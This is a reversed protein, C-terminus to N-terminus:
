GCADLAELFARPLRHPHRAAFLGEYSRAAAMLEPREEALRRVVRDERWQPEGALHALVARSESIEGVCEFPKHDGVGCLAAFGATQSEDDLLDRGFIGALEGKEVFPALALFVFRCKPCDGCWQRARAEASQRFAANCSRFTGFYQPHRSFRRAIEIESLPRLFSFYDLGTAIHDALYRALLGEFELSKSWQHNVAVGDAVLNPASASHENSMAVAREGDLIAAALAIASLIGTIPVHGNLAGARNLALLRPDLRRRVRVSPLGSAAVTAAIPAADGLMFLTVPEGARRLCELTVISDKGGGVPVLTRRPLDLALPSPPPAPQTEFEIRGALSLRNRYAFEALGQEYFRRLFAATAIDLPFADCRLRPPVFAKYYSVGCFLLLLRFVRDLAEEERGTLVRRPPEFALTEEFEDGGEFRYRLRLTAAARDYDYGDFVFVEPPM